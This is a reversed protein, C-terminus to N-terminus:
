LFLRAFMHVSQTLYFDVLEPVLLEVLISQLDIVINYRNESYGVPRLIYLIFNEVYKVCSM